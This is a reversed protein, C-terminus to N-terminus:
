QGGGTSVVGSDGLVQKETLAEAAGTRAVASQFILYEVTKDYIVKHM